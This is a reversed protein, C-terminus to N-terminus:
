MKYLSSLNANCNLAHDHTEGIWPVLGELAIPKVASSNHRLADQDHYVPVDVSLHHSCT